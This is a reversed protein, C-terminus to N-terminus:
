LPTRRDSRAGGDWSSWQGRGDWDDDEWDEYDWDGDDWDGDDVLFFRDLHDLYWRAERRRIENLLRYEPAADPEVALAREMLDVFEELNQEPLSVALALTVYPSSKRGAALDVARQYHWRALARDGGLGEPLAAYYSIYFEHIAGNDFDPQLQYAREMLRAATPVSLALDLDFPDTSWAGAWGAAAWYLLAVDSAATQQLAADFEPSEPSRQLDPLRSVLQQLALDRGRLYLNKARALMRERQEFQQPELMTAPTQLFGNAYSVYGGAASVVLAENRPDQQLLADHLKLVFPLAAEILEPDDDTTFVNVGDGGSLVDSFRRVMMRNISCSSVVAVSLVVFLLQIGLRFRRM